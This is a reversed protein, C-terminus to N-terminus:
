KKFTVLIPKDIRIDVADLAIYLRGCIRVSPMKSLMRYKYAEKYDSVKFFTLKYYKYTEPVIDADVTIVTMGPFAPCEGKKAQRIVDKPVNNFYRFGHAFLQVIPNYKRCEDLQEKTVPYLMQDLLKKGVVTKNALMKMFAREGGAIATYYLEDNVYNVDDLVVLYYAM